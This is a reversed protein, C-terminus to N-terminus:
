FGKLFGNPLVKYHRSTLVFMLWYLEYRNEDGTPPVVDDFFRSVYHLTFLEIQISGFTSEIQPSFHHTKAIDAYMVLRARAIINVM